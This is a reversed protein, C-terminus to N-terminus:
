DMPFMKIVAVAAGQPDKLVAFRGTDPIDKPPSLVEAGLGKAREVIADCDDVSFYPMLRSPIM